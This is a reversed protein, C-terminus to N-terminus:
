KKNRRYFLTYWLHLTCLFFLFFLCVFLFLPAVRKTAHEGRHLLYAREIVEFPFLFFNKRCVPGQFFVSFTAPSLFSDVSLSVGASSLWWFVLTGRCSPRWFLLVYVLIFVTLFLSLFLFCRERPFAWDLQAFM